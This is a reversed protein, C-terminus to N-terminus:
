GSYIIINDDTSLSSVFGKCTRFTAPSASLFAREARTHGRGKKEPQFRATDSKGKQRM